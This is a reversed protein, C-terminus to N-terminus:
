LWHWRIASRRREDDLWARLIADNVVRRTEADLVAARRGLLQAVCWQGGEAFPTTTQGAALARIEAALSGGRVSRITVDGDDVQGAAVMELLSARHAAESVARARRESSLDVRLVRLLDFDPAHAAFYSETEGNVIAEHLKRRHVGGSILLQFQRGDLGRSSLWDRTAAASELGLRRRFADAAEQEEEATSGLQRAKVARAIIAEDVLADAISAREDAALRLFLLADQITLHAEGISLVYSAAWHEAYDALWPTGHDPSYTLAVTGGNPLDLLVDYEVRDRGPELDIALEASVDRHRQQFDQFCRRAADVASPASPLETLVAVADTLARDFALSM